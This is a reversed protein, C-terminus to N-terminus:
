CGLVAEARDHTNGHAYDWGARGQGAQEAPRTLHRSSLGLQPLSMCGGRRRAMESPGTGGNNEWCSTKGVGMNVAESRIEAQRYPRALSTGTARCSLMVSWLPRGHCLQGDMVKVALRPSAPSDRGKKEGTCDISAGAAVERASRSPHLQPSHWIGPVIRVCRRYTM